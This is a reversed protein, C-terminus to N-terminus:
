HVRRTNCACGPGLTTCRELYTSLLFDSVAEQTEVSLPGRRMEEQVDELLEHAEEYMRRVYGPDEISPRLDSM